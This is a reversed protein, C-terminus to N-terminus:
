NKTKASLRLIRHLKTVPTSDSCRASPLAPCPPPAARLPLPYCSQNSLRFRRVVRYSPSVRLDREIVTEWFHLTPIISGAECPKQSLQVSHADFAVELRAVGGLGSSEQVPTRTKPACIRSRCSELRATRLAFALLMQGPNLLLALAGRNKKSLSFPCPM